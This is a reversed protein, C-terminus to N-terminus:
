VSNKKFCYLTLSDADWSELLSSNQSSFCKSIEKKQIHLNENMDQWGTPSILSIFLILVFSKAGLIGIKLKQTNNNKKELMM